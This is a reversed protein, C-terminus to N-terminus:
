GTPYYIPSLNGGIYWRLALGRVLRREVTGITTVRTADVPVPDDLYVGVPEIVLAGLAPRRDVRATIAWRPGALTVAHKTGTGGVSHYRTTGTSGGAKEEDTRDSIESCVGHDHGM